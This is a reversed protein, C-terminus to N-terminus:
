CLFVAFLCRLNLLSADSALSSINLSPTLQHTQDKAAM